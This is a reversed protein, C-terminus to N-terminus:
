APFTWAGAGGNRAADYQREAFRWNALTDLFANLFQGRENKYDLYYAHEWLDCVLLPTVRPDIAPTGADHLADLGVAGKEDAVLWIWGSGFHAGGVAAFEERFAELTDFRRELAQKLPGEPGAQKETTLSQWFFAHNLAQAANNFLGADKERAALRVVEELAGPANAREALAANTKKIYGAHHKGYHTAVTDRSMTPALADEAFPLAPLKFM